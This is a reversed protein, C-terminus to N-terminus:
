DEKDHKRENIHRRIVFVFLGVMLLVWFWQSSVTGNFLYTVDPKKVLQSKVASIGVVWLTMFVNAIMFTEMYERMKKPELRM